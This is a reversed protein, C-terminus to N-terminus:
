VDQENEPVEKKETEQETNTELSDRIEEWSSAASVTISTGYKENIEAVCAKRQNLMDDFLPLLASTNMENETDNLTERKANWNANIGIDNFWKADLYQQLEIIQNIYNASVGTASQLMTRTNDAGTFIPDAIVGLRGEEVQKLFTEAAQKSADGSATIITQLRMLIEASRITVLNEAMLSSYREFMPLLGIENSDNRVLVCEKGIEWDYSIGLWPNAGIWRTGRFYADCVGGRAGPLAYLKGKVDSVACVGDLVLYRELMAAPITDPLGEYKFASALRNLQYMMFWDASAQKNLVSLPDSSKVKWSAKPNNISNSM